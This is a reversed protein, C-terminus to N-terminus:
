CCGITGPLLHVRAELSTIAEDNNMPIGLWAKLATDVMTHVQPIDGFHNILSARYIEAREYPDEISMDIVPRFHTQTTGAQNNEAEEGKDDSPHHRHEDDTSRDHANPMKKTTTIGTQSAAGHTQTEEGASADNSPQGVVKSPQEVASPRQSPAKATNRKNIGLYVALGISFLVCAITALLVRKKM